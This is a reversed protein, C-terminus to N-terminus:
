SSPPISAISARSRYKKPPFFAIGLCIAAVMALLSVISLAWVHERLGTGYVLRHAIPVVYALASAAMAIGWLGVRHVVLPEALGIRARRRLKGHFRLCEFALWAPALSRAALGLPIWPGQARLTDGYRMYEETAVEGFLSLAMAFTVAAAVVQGHRDDSHFVKWAFLTMSIVGVYEIGLGVLVLTAVTEPSASGVLKGVTGVAYALFGTCLLALAMLLEPLKRTRLHLFILRTGIALATVMFLLLGALSAVKM